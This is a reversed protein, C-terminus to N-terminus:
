TSLNVLLFYACVLLRRQALLLTKSFYPDWPPNKVGGVGKRVGKVVLQSNKWHESRAGMKGSNNANKGAVSLTQIQLHTYVQCDNSFFSLINLEFVKWGDYQYFNVLYGRALMQQIPYKLGTNRSSKWGTSGRTMCKNKRFGLYELGTTGLRPAAAGQSTM